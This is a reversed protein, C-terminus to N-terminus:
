SRSTQENFVAQAKRRSFRAIIQSDDSSEISESSNNLDRLSNESSSDKIHIRPADNQEVLQFDEDSSM